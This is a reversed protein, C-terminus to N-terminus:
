PACDGLRKGSVKMSMEGQASNMKMSGAYSDGKFVMEGTGTMPQPSTCEMKWTVTDGTVKQDSVKCNQNSNGRGQPGRGLTNGPDKAQEPTICMVNKMEPMQVPMNAMQMQVTVEWNGPRLPSQAETVTVAFLIGVAVISLRRM